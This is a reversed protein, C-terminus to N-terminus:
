QKIGKEFEKTKVENCTFWNEEGDVQAKMSKINAVIEARLFAVTDLITDVKEDVKLINTIEGNKEILQWWKWKKGFEFKM